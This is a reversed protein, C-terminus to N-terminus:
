GQTGVHVVVFVSAPFDACLQKLVPFSGTSGGIVVIDHSPM